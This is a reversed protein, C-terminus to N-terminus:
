IAIEDPARKLHNQLFLPTFQSGPKPVFNNILGKKM